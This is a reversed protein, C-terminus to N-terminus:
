WIYPILKYKTKQAYERYGELQKHLIKDEKITHIVITVILGTSPILAYLSGLALCHCICLIIVALYMPHRVIKYPGATIVKNGRERERNALFFLVLTIIMGIFGIINVLISMKSWQYRVADFGPIIYMAIYFFTGILGIKKASVKLLEPVDKELSTSFIAMIIFYIWGQDWFITGAPLFFALGLFIHMMLIKFLLALGLIILMIFDVVLNTESDEKSIIEKIKEKPIISILTEKITNMENSSRVHLDFNLYRDEGEEDFESIFSIRFNVENIIIEKIMEFKIFITHDLFTFAKSHVKSYDLEAKEYNL